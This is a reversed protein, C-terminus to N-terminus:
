EHRDEEKGAVPHHLSLPPIRRVGWLALLMVAVVLWQSGHIADVLSGRAGALLSAADQGAHLAAAAFRAALAHDVLVQPEDLWASWQAGDHALLMAHVQHAYLHSVLTGVLATGLMGGIMRMSQIMATAVGLQPRPASAQAFLTVNPLLTGLGLGGLMMVAAIQAHPTAITTQTLALAALWYFVLGVYLMANPSRLRTVIRGNAISGITICVALPTVLLGAQNPSLGFGGQFMLPAYYTVAFMCFGMTLSLAFLPALSRHAFMDLPLVPNACRREWWILAAAAAAGAAGLAALLPLPKHQPLWEVLLQLSGLTLALLMSGAWDLRSPAGETHRIRPLWRWVFGLSAIGVPLNVFFIWRWGWYETLYGGLSPGVANALGFASSFLVQWRLRARADVFLDPVSAFTTAVLMGGGVGQLGRALVLQLMSQAMGCLMSALTFLVIAALVFPKRGHEDGLKGFIPVAIVSTLLYATGVWAYLDFGNLEAVVTPLATGIVTQDLAVMILVFCLGLMAFLKQRFDQPLAAARAAPSRDM